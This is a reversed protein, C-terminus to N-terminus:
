GAADHKLAGGAGGRVEACANRAHRVDGCVPPEGGAEGVALAGLADGPAGGDLAGTAEVDDELGATQENLGDRVPEVDGVGVLAVLRLPVLDLQRGDVIAARM